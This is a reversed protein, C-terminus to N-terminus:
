SQRCPPCRRAPEDPAPKAMRKAEWSPRCRPGVEGRALSAGKCKAEMEEWGARATRLVVADADTDWGCGNSM